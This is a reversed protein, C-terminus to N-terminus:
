LSDVVDEVGGLQQTAGGSYGYGVLATGITNHDPHILTEAKLAFLLDILDLYVPKGAPDHILVFDMAPKSGYAILFEFFLNLFKQRVM